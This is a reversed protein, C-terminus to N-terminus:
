RLWEPHELSWDVVNRLSDEFEVPAVWGAERLKTGDLAYRRDHGPRTAHHDIYKANLDKGVYEAILLAMEMNNVERDGVVNYRDPRDVTGGDEYMTAPLNEIIYQIADAQNRAHLYYRSGVKGPAGHITVERGESIGKILMPVFKETDQRESFLNMTNTLILPVGYTRWYSIAIAEQAAKSASYPNSPLITSWEVHNVGDPAPGYVEDTSIQMFVRPKVERAYELMHLAINVNNQIFPVPDVISRDVHSDAACNIIVDVHGIRAKLIDSMPANLDHTYIDVRDSNYQYIESESIREPVGKHQWSAIGVIHWDTNELYHDLMNSGM